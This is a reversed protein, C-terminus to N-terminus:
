KSNESLLAPLEDADPEDAAADEAARDERTEHAAKNAERKDATKM